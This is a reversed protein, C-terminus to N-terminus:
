AAPFLPTGNAFKGSFFAPRHPAPNVAAFIASHRHSRHRIRCLLWLTSHRVIGYSVNPIRNQLLRIAIVHTSDRKEHPM